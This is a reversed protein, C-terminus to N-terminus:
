IDILVSNIKGCYTVYTNIGLTFKKKIELKKNTLDMFVYFNHKGASIEINLCKIGV